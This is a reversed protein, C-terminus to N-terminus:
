QKLGDQEISYKNIKEALYMPVEFFGSGRKEKDKVASLGDICVLPGLLFATIPDGICVGVLELACGGVFRGFGSYNTARVADFYLNQEEIMEKVRKPLMGNPIYTLKTGVKHAENLVDKFINQLDYKEAM